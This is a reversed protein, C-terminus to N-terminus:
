AIMAPERWQRRSTRDLDYRVAAIRRVADTLVPAPLTFPLRLFRELTGDLGFRPGPALRVGTEEAARALASSIPGDLEAWLTVGGHPV